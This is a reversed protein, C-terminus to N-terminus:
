VIIYWRLFTLSSDDNWCTQDACLISNLEYSILQDLDGCLTGDEEMGKAVSFHM